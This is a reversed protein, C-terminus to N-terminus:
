PILAAWGLACLGAALLLGFALSYWWRCSEDNLWVIIKVIM